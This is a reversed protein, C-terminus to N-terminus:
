TSAKKKAWYERKAAALKERYEPTDWKARKAKFEESNMTAKLKEKRRALAEPDAMKALRKPQSERVGAIRKAEFEPDKGNLESWGKMAPNAKLNNALAQRTEISLNRAVGTREAIRAARFEPDQWVAKLKARVEPKKAPNAAGSFLAKVDPDRMRAKQKARAEPSRAPHNPNKMAASLKARHEPSPSAIGDGGSSLNTLPGTGTQIRGLEAILKRELEQGAIISEVFRLEVVVHEFGIEELRKRCLWNRNGGNRPNTRRPSKTLGIYFPMGDPSKWIYVFM